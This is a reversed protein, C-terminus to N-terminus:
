SNVVKIERCFNDFFNPYFVRSLTPTKDFNFKQVFIRSKSYHSRWKNKFIRQFQQFRDDIVFRQYKKQLLGAIIETATNHIWQMDIGLKTYYTRINCHRYSKKAELDLNMFEYLLPLKQLVQFRATFQLFGGGFSNRRAVTNSFWGFHRMQIKWNQCKGGIKLRKFSVQRTVRISRM